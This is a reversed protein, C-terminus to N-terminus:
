VVYWVKKGKVKGKRKLAKTVSSPHVGIFQAFAKESEFEVVTEFQAAIRKRHEANTKPHKKLAARLAMLRKKVLEPPQERGSLSASIKARTARSVKHGDVITNYVPHLKNIWYRERKVLDAKECEELIQFTFGNRGYKDIADQFRKSHGSRTWNCFHASIRDKICVSQGIYYDGTIRNTIKYVGVM